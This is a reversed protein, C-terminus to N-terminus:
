DLMEELLHFYKLMKNASNKANEISVAVLHGMGRLKFSGSPQEFENKFFVRCPPKTPLKNTVEVFTTKISPEKM